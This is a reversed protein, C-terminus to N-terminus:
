PVRPPTSTGADHRSLLLREVEEDYSPKLDTRAIWTAGSREVVGATTGVFMTSTSRNAPTPVCEAAYSYANAGRKVLRLLPVFDPLTGGAKLGDESVVMFTADECAEPSARLHLPNGDTGIKVLVPFRDGGPIRL